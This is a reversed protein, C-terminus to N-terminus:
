LQELSRTHGTKLIFTCAMMFLFLILLFVPFIGTGLWDAFAGFLVPTILISLYSFAMQIGIISQSSRVGFLTPTLHTMNPLMPGNGLGTLFLAVVATTPNSQTLLLIVAISLTLQAAGIIQWDSYKLTLLGSAFRGLTIGVFYFAILAAALDPSLGVSGALFTSGWILCTSELGGIGSFVACSALIKKRRLMQMLPIVHVFDEEPQSSKLKKWLPLSCISLVAIALQILFVARYGSQWSKNEALAVSMLFPSATVGIGYFCHLFNMQMSNYHLAVYNNLATDVSGAGIGLPIAFVCLWLFNHSCSFGLLAVTTLATSLVTIKATGLKAIMKASMLSSLVTGGSIILSIVSAYSVPVGLQPYIAPWAAGLLSDPIGLGIYFIYILILLATAM